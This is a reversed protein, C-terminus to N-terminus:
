EQMPNAARPLRVTVTTGGGPKSDVHIKGQHDEVVQAVIALGLGTGKGQEKTTFFPDFMKKKVSDPMGCGTDRIRIQVSSEDYSTSLTLEGGSEEMAHFGNLILNLLLQQIQIENAHIRQDMCNLDLRIEVTEPKAPLAVHLTRQIQEDASVQRFASPTNKRSLDNLRSIIEKAKRSSNYIELLNDYLEDEQPIKELALLSYGMIPTLLNNFEHAISATLTGITELRQHHSLRRTQQYVAEMAAHKQQLADAERQLRSSRRITHLFLIVLILVGTIVMGGSIMTYVATLQMAELLQQHNEHDLALSEFHDFSQLGWLFGIGMLMLAALFFVAAIRSITIRRM